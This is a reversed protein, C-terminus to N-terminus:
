LRVLILDGGPISTLLKEWSIKYYGEESDVVYVGKNDYGRIVIAHHLGQGKIDSDRKFPWKKLGFMTTANISASVPRGYNLSRKIHKSFDCDIIINNDNQDDKLWLLLGTVDKYIDSKIGQTKRYHTQLKELKKIIKQKPFKSWSYDILDLNSTVITVKSFGLKNFLKAQQSTFLGGQRAYIPVMMRTEKYNIEKNYYNAVSSCAAIACENTRQRYRKVGLLIRDVDM